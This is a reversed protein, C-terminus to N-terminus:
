GLKVCKGLPFGHVYHLSNEIEDDLCRLLQRRFIYVGLETAGLLSTVNM